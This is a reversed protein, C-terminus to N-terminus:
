YMCMEGFSRVMVLILVHLVALLATHFLSPATFDLIALGIMPYFVKAKPAAPLCPQNLSVIKIFFVIVRILMLAEIIAM